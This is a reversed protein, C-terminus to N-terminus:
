KEVYRLERVVFGKARMWRIFERETVRWDPRDGEPAIDRFLLRDPPCKGEHRGFFHCHRSILEKQSISTLAEIQDLTYLFPRVPLRVSETWGSYIRNFDDTTREAPM